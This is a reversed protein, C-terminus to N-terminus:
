LEVITWGGNSGARFPHAFFTVSILDIEPKVAQVKEILLAKELETLGSSAIQNLVSGRTGKLQGQTFPAPPKPNEAPM